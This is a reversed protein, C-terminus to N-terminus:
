TYVWSLLTFVSLSAKWDTFHFLILNFVLKLMWLSWTCSWLEYHSTPSPYWCKISSFCIWVALVLFPLCTFCSVHSFLMSPHNFVLNFWLISSDVGILIFYELFVCYCMTHFGLCMYVLSGLLVVISGNFDM